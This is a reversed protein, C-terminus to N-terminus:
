QVGMSSFAYDPIALVDLDQHPHLLVTTDQGDSSHSLRQEQAGKSACTSSYLILSPWNHFQWRRVPLLMDAQLIMMSEDGATRVCAAQLEIMYRFVLGCSRLIYMRAGRRLANQMRFSRM